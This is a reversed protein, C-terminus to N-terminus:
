DNKEELFREIEEMLLTLKETEGNKVWEEIESFYPNEREVGSITWSVGPRFQSKCLLVYTESHQGGHWLTLVAHLAEAQDFYNETDLLTFM